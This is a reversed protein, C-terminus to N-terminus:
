RLSKSFSKFRSLKKLLGYASADEYLLERKQQNLKLMKGNIDITFNIKGDIDEQSIKGISTSKSNIIPSNILLTVMENLSKIEYASAQIDFENKSIFYENLQVSSPLSKQLYFAFLYPNMSNNYFDKISESYRKLSKIKSESNSIKQSILEYEIHKSELRRIINKPYLTILQIIFVSILIISSPYFLDPNKKFTQYLYLIKEKNTRKSALINKAKPRLWRKLKSNKFAFNYNLPM